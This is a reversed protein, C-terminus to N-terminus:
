SAIVILAFYCFHCASTNRVTSPETLIDKCATRRQEASKRVQLPSCKRSHKHGLHKFEPKYMYSLAVNQTLYPFHSM